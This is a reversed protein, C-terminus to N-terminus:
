CSVMGRRAASGGAGARIRGARRLSSVPEPKGHPKDPLGRERGVKWGGECWWVGLDKTQALWHGGRTDNLFDNTQAAPLASATFLMILFSALFSVLGARISNLARNVLGSHRCSARSDLTQDKGGGLPGCADRAILGNTAFACTCHLIPNM